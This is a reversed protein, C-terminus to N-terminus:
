TNTSTCKCDWGARRSKDENTSGTPLGFQDMVHLSAFCTGLSLFRHQFLLKDFYGLAANLLVDARIYPKEVSSPRGLGAEFSLLPM